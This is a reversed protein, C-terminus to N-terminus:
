KLFNSFPFSSDIRGYKSAHTILHYKASYIDVLTMAAAPLDERLKTVTKNLMANFKKALANYFISCGTEDKQEPGVPPRVLVYALCGLPGTNHIM